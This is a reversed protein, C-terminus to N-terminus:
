CVLLKHQRLAQDAADMDQSTPVDASPSHGADVIEQRVRMLARFFSVDAALVIAEALSRADSRMAEDDIVVSHLYGGRASRFLLHGSPHLVDYEPQPDQPECQHGGASM